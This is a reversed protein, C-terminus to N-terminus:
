KELDDLNEDPLDIPRVLGPVSRRLEDESKKRREEELEAEELFLAESDESFERLSILFDRIHEKFINLTKYLDFLGKIFTEIQIQSIHQFAMSLMQRLELAIFDRNPLGTDPSLTFPYKPEVAEQILISLIAIHYRFGSKHDADTLVFFIEKLLSLYHDRYFLPAQESQSVCHLLQYCSSLGTETIEYTTHKFAWVICDVILKFQPKPLRIVASFCSSNLVKLLAFFNLRHEPYETFDQSIMLLTPELVADLISPVLISVNKGSHSIITATVKLVDPERLQPISERYDTLVTNLFPSVIIHSLTSIDDAYEAFFDICNIIEKKIIRLNKVTSARSVIEGYREAEEKILTNATTYLTLMDMFILSLQPYYAQHLSKCASTNSRIIAATEKSVKGDLLRYSDNGLENILSDWRSNTLKMMEIVLKGHKGKDTHANILHGITELFFNYQHPKLDNTIVPLNGLVEELLTEDEGSQISNFHASCKKAVTMFTDCAMDQVGEHSEHMFEFLKLVVTKLFKWSTKLFRPYQGIVYMIDSAVVAKNDKGEKEDCLSLLDRIVFVLFTQEAEKELTGSISGVAWCVTNIRNWSWKSPDSLASLRSLMIDTTEQPNLHTLYVLIERMELYIQLTETERTRERVITGSDDEVVLVEEPREMNDIMAERLQTTMERYLDKRTPQIPTYNDKPLTIGPERYLNKTIVAWYGICVKFIERDNIQTLRLLIFHVSNIETTLSHKEFMLLHKEFLTSLFIALNQLFVQELDTSNSYFDALNMDLINGYKAYTTKLVEKLVGAFCDGHEEPKYLVSIETLCKLTTSQYQPSDLFRNSLIEIINTSFIYGFPIWKLFGLFAELTVTLLSIKQSYTLIEYFLQYIESFDKSFQEKLTKVRTTTMQEESYNFVEESLIKLIVINNECLTLNTRSANVIEGIFGEWHKPWEHKLIQVLVINMKNIFVRESKFTNEDSTTKILQGVIYGRIGERQERPLSNWRTQVLIMLVQLAIFRANTSKSNELIYDVRRWSEPNNQFETLVTQATAQEEGKGHAFTEAVKDFLEIDM